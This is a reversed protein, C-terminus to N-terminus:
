LLTFFKKIAKQYLKPNKKISSFFENQEIFEKISLNSNSYDYAANFVLPDFETPLLYYEEKTKPSVEPFTTQPSSVTKGMAFQNVHMLEHTLTKKLDQLNKLSNLFLIIRISNNYEECRGKKETNTEFDLIVEFPLPSFKDYQNPADEYSFMFTNKTYSVPSDTPDFSNNTLSSITEKAWFLIKDLLSSPVYLAAQRISLKM